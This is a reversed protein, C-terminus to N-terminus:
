GRVDGDEKQTASSYINADRPNLYLTLSRLFGILFVAAAAAFWDPVTMIGPIWQMGVVFLVVASIRLMYNKSMTAIRTDAARGAAPNLTNRLSRFIRLHQPHVLHLADIKLVNVHPDGNKDFTAIWFRYLGNDGNAIAPYEPLQSHRQTKGDGRGSSPGDNAVRRKIDQRVIEYEEKSIMCFIALRHLPIYKFAQAIEWALGEGPGLSFFIFNARFMMDLVDAQWEYEPRYTRTAGTEPLKEGPRGLALVPGIERLVSVIQEEQTLGSQIISFFPDEKEENSVRDMRRMMSDDHFSRLYLVFSKEAPVWGRRLIPALIRRGRRGLIRGAPLAVVQAAGIIGGLQIGWTHILPIWGALFVAGLCTLFWGTSCFLVGRMPPRFFPHDGDPASHLIPPECYEWDRPAPPWEPDPSWEMDPIWSAQSTPWQPPMHFKWEHLKRSQLSVTFDRIVCYVRILDQNYIKGLDIFRGNKLTVGIHIWRIAYERLSLGSVESLSIQHRVRLTIRSYTVIQQKTIVLDTTPFQFLKVHCSAPEDPNLWLQQKGFPNVPSGSDSKSAAPSSNTQHRWDTPEFNRISKPLRPGQVKALTRATSALVYLAGVISLSIWGLLSMSGYISVWILIGIGGALLISTYVGGMFAISKYKAFDPRSASRSVLYRLILYRLGSNIITIACIGAIWYNNM